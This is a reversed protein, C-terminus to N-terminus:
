TVSQNLDRAHDDPYQVSTYSSVGLSVIKKGGTYHAQLTLFGYPAGTNPTDILVTLEVPTIAIVDTVVAHPISTQISAIFAATDSFSYGYNADFHAAFEANTLAMGSQLKTLLWNLQDVAPGPPLQYPGGVTAPAFLPTLIPKEFGDSYIRDAM